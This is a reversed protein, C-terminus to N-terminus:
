RESNGPMVTNGPKAANGPKVAAITDKASRITREPPGLKRM